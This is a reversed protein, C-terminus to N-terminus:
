IRHAAPRDVSPADSAVFRLPELKSLRREAPPREVCLRHPLRKGRADSYTPCSVRRQQPYPTRLRSIRSHMQRQARGSWCCGCLRRARLPIVVDGQQVGQYDKETFSLTYGDERRSERTTVQGDRYATVVPTDDSPPRELKTLALGIRTRTWAQAPEMTRSLSHALRRELLTTVLQEQEAILADIKATERDLYDAIAQQEALSRPVPIPLKGVDSQRLGVRTVGTALTAWRQAAHDSALAWYLYRPLVESTRPRAIGLHYGCVLRPATRRVFAPVGIDDATESDKTFVTDGPKLSFRKVEGPNATAPMYELTDDIDHNKYVDVYNCLCIPGEDVYAKKDVTSVIIEALHGLRRSM